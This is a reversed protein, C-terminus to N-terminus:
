WSFMQKFSILITIRCKILFFSHHVHTSSPSPDILYNFVCLYISFNIFFYINYSSFMKYSVYISKVYIRTHEGQSYSIRIVDIHYYIWEGQSCLIINIFSNRFTSTLMVNQSSLNISKHLVGFRTFLLNWHCSRLM